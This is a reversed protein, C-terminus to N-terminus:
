VVIGFSVGVCRWLGAIMPHGSSSFDGSPSFRAGVSELVALLQNAFYIIGWRALKMLKTLRKRQQGKKM